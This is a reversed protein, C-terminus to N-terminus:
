LRSAGGGNISTNPYYKAEIILIKRPADLTSSLTACADGGTIEDMSLLGAFHKGARMYDMMFQARGERTEIFDCEAQFTYSLYPRPPQAGVGRGLSLYAMMNALHDRSPINRLPGTKNLGEVLHTLIIDLVEEQM